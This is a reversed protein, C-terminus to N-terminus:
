DLAVAAAARGGHQLLVLLTVINALGLRVWPLPTPVLRELIFLLAAAAAYLAVRARLALRERSAEPKSGGRGGPTPMASSVDTGTRPGAGVGTPALHTGPQPEARRVDLGGAM